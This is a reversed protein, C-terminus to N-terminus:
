VVGPTLNGIATLEEKRDRVCCNHDVDDHKQINVVLM